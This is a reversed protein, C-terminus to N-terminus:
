AGEVVAIEEGTLGYLEYVLRDIQRDTADIQHQLITQEHNTTVESYREHLSLMHNVLSVMQDHRTRDQVDAFNIRRIPLKSISNWFYEIIGASKLKGIFKFRFTLLRSNLLGLIYRLQEPQEIEYLVTTDTLGLFRKQEDLAFRNTTALYPCLLKSKHMHDKHLPWTYRWWDCNGRQFAARQKLQEERETLHAQVNETLDEFRKVDELYLLYEGSDHIRYRRIDSNRARVFYQSPHLGWSQVQERTLGGFVANRGTEMGKGIHLVKGLPQGAADVKRNIADVDADAFLWSAMTFSEQNVAIHQFLTPDRKQEALDDLRSAQDRLLYFDANPVSSGKRLSVIATTIGVGDFVYRNQFDIIETIDTQAALWRRLNDAKYAELFARSVIFSVDSKAIQVAKAFFYFLIDTKDNYVQSYARKIYRQRPDGKGWTDDINLYPPNGIVADFGGAEMITPYAGKWDFVNIRYHEEADLFSIQQSDYFDPGVLSNGCKINDDLDPLAREKFMALQTVLTQASEGELVKLLLSLKTVEVAQPDIDVGYINNLLIRKKESTTLLWHGGPGQHLERRHKQPGDELYRDRHWDLLYQYAGILFSGSGCAPDVIRLKSAGGSPGPKKGELLAGVTHRVIYDVISKPTYYVGGAKRVEPKEEITVGRDPSLDIVKGLFQEYVQGLVEVPLVSFEYPSDPYYLSRIIDKLTRDDIDLVPTLRDPQELRDKEQHFHFLGSNYREDAQRYLEKLRDYVHDGALLAQLRGYDEIGRDETMRLFVIRDITVQVAFNLERRTLKPNRLALDRALAGRWSEIEKLFVADVTATGRKTKATEAYAAFSGSVVADRSFVGALEDWSSAYQDYTYMRLRATRSDDDKNPQVRCDYVALEEFDTLISLPLKASWGYRRLQFAPLPDDELSVSPKKAEVFFQRNGGVRFGYDPAKHAGGIKIADEHVVDQYAPANGQRNTVDWGLLEFLPDIFERRVRTENYRESRYGDRNRDFREVLVQLGDPATM